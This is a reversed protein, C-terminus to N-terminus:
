PHSQHSPDLAPLASDAGGPGPSRSDQDRNRANSQAVPSGRLILFVFPIVICALVLGGAGLLVAKGQERSFYQKLDDMMEKMPAAPVAADNVHYATMPDKAAGHPAAQEQPTTSCGALFLLGLAPLTWAVLGM